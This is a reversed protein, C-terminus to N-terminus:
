LLTMNYLCHNPLKGNERYIEYLAVFFVIMLDIWVLNQYVGSSLAAITPINEFHLYNKFENSRQCLEMKECVRM